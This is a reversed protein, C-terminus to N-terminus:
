RRGYYGRSDAGASAQAPGASPAPRENALAEMQDVAQGRTEVPETLTCQRLLRGDAARTCRAVTYGDRGGADAPARTVALCDVAGAPVNERTTGPACLTPREAAADRVWGNARPPLRPRDSASDAGAQARGSM